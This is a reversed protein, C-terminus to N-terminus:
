KKKAASKIPIEVTEKVTTNPNKEAFEKTVFGGTISSRYKFIKKTKKM